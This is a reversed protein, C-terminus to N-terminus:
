KALAQIKKCWQDDAFIAELGAPTGGDYDYGMINNGIGSHAPERRGNDLIM